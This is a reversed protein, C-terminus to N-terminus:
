LNRLQGFFLAAGFIMSCSGGRAFCLICAASQINNATEETM